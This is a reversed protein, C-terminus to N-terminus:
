LLCAMTFLGSSAIFCTKVTSLKYQEVLKLGSVLSDMIESIKSSEVRHVIYKDAQAKIKPLLIMDSM